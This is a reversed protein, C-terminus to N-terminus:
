VGQYWRDHTYRHRLLLKLLVAKARKLIGYGIAIWILVALIIGSIFSAITNASESIDDCKYYPCTFTIGTYPSIGYLILSTPALNILAVFIVFAIWLCIESFM